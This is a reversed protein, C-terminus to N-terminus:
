VRTYNCNYVLQRDYFCNLFTEDHKISWVLDHRWKSSITIKLTDGDNFNSGCISLQVQLKSQFSSKELFKAVPIMWKWYSSVSTIRIPVLKTRIMFANNNSIRDSIRKICVQLQKKAIWNKQWFHVIENQCILLSIDRVYLIIDRINEDMYCDIHRSKQRSRTPWKSNYRELASVSLHQSVLCSFLTNNRKYKM